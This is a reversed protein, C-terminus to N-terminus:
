TPFRCGDTSSHAFLVKAHSVRHESAELIQTSEPRKLIQFSKEDPNGTGCSPLVSPCAEPSRKQATHSYPRLNWVNIEETTSHQGRTSKNVIEMGRAYRGHILLHGPTPIQQRSDLGHDLISVTNSNGPRGFLMIRQSHFARGLFFFRRLMRGVLAMQFRVSRSPQYCVM